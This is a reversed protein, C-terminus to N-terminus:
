MGRARRRRAAQRHLTLLETSLSKVAPLGAYGLHSLGFVDEITRLLSYHNFPEQSTTGGKIFPSLLLAGVAGGGHGLTPATYNPYAPQGCCTSSDALEGSSPAEDTTIVLLGDKRFAKSSTIEPVVEALFSSADAAGAAAGPTCPTPEGDHCRDPAIYSFQPTHSAPGALDRELASLGVDSTACSSAATIGEFYAFPNRYDAYAGSALTTDPAGLVPHACAPESSGPEDIGQIYARWSLHHTALQGPLTEVTSPYVCGEGLLQADPGIGTSALPAYTACNAATAATPGQGSLLAIGNALQEHAVADYKVLLAGKGELTHALYRDPGEPGFNQAYPEDSLVILFVHGIETLKPTAAAPKTSATNEEKAAPAPTTTSSPTTAAATPTPEAEIAPPESGEPESAEKSRAAEGKAARHPVILKLPAGTAAVLRTSAGGAAGLLAGFGLFLAVLLASIRPGPLRLPPSVHAPEEVPARTEPGLARSRLRRLVEDLHESRPGLRNGCLLCYRQAADLPAGCTECQRSTSM